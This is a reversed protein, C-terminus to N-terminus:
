LYIILNSLIDGGVAIADDKSTVGCTHFDLLNYWHQFHYFHTIDMISFFFTSMSSFRTGMGVGPQLHPPPFRCSNMTRTSIVKRQIKM